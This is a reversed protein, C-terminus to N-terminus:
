TKLFHDIRILQFNRLWIANSSKLFNFKNEASIKNSQVKKLAACGHVYLEGPQEQGKILPHLKTTYKVLQWLSTQFEVAKKQAIDQKRHQIKPCYM